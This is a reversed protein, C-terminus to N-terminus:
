SKLYIEIKIYEADKSPYLDNQTLFVANDSHTKNYM